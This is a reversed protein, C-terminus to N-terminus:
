RATWRSPTSRTATGRTRRSASSSITRVPPGTPAIPGPATPGPAPPAATGGVTTGATGDKFLAAGVSTKTGAYTVADFYLNRDTAATGGATMTSSASPSPTSAPPFAPSSWATARARPTPPAPRGRAASRSATWRSSSSRTEREVRGALRPPRPRERGRAARHPFFTRRGPDYPHSLDSAPRSPLTTIGSVTAPGEVIQSGSLGFVADNAITATVGTQNLLLRSSGSGLDNVVTNGTIVLSSGAYAPGEGGYHIIAPNSSNAGQEIVNGSITARGGNPLDISYSGTGNAGQAIRSGTIITEQARSKIEHGVVADHFYSNEIRLTAIDGVYLNHTRGDGSGNHSFESDRITISGGPVAGSLLGNQNDHFYTDELTLAGGQYRIGAGNGDPVKSGAFEVNRITVDTNTTLIAKGDSPSATALLKAMGGVGEITIKTNITAFDNVYTGAQVRVVDGNKSAAVAASLTTFQQGAGVTLITM